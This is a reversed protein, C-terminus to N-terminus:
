VDEVLDISVHHIVESHQHPIHRNGRNRTQIYHSALLLLTHELEELDRLAADYVVFLGRQDQIRVHRGEGSYYDHHNDVEPFEMFESCHVQMHAFVYVTLMCMCM